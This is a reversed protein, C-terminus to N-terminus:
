KVEQSVQILLGNNDEIILSKSQTNKDEFIGHNITVKKARFYSEAKSIDTVYFGTKFFGRMTFQQGAKINFDTVSKSNKTQLIEIQLFDNGVIRVHIRNDPTKIEKLLKMQFVDEYWKSTAETNEVSIAFFHKGAYPLGDQAKSTILLLLFFFTTLIRM